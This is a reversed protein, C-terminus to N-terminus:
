TRRRAPRHIARQLRWYLAYRDPDESSPSAAASGSPADNQERLLEAVIRIQAPTMAVLEVSEAAKAAEARSSYRQFGDVDDISGVPSLPDVERLTWARPDTGFSSSHQESTIFVRGAYLRRGIRSSFWRLTGADFFHSGGAAVHERVHAMDRLHHRRM